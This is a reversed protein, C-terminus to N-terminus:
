EGTDNGGQASGSNVGARDLRRTFGAGGFGGSGLSATGKVLDHLRDQKLACATPQVQEKGGSSVADIRPTGFGQGTFGQRAGIAVPDPLHGAKGDPTDRWEPMQRRQWSEKVGPQHVKGGDPGGCAGRSMDELGVGSCQDPDSRGRYLVESGTAATLVPDPQVPLIARKIYINKM